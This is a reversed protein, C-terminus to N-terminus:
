CNVHLTVSSELEVHLHAMDLALLRIEDPLM